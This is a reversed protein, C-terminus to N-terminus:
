RPSSRKTPRPPTRRIVRKPPAPVLKQRLEKRYGTTLPSWVHATERQRKRVEPLKRIWTKMEPSWVEKRLPKKKQSIGEENAQVLIHSDAYEDATEALKLEVTGQLVGLHTGEEDRHALAFETGKVTCVGLPTEFVWVGPYGASVDVRGLITGRRMLIRGEQETTRGIILDTESQIVWLVQPNLAIEVTSDEGTQIQDGPEIPMDTKAQAGQTAGQVFLQVDGSVRGIRAQNEALPDEAFATMALLTALFCAGALLRHTAEGGCLMPPDCHRSM